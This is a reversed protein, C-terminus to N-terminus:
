NRDMPALSHVSQKRGRYAPSHGLVTQESASM